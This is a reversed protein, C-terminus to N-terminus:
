GRPSESDVDMLFVAMPEGMGDKMDPVFVPCFVGNSIKSMIPFSVNTYLVSYAHQFRLNKPLEPTYKLWM